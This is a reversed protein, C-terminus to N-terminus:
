RTRRGEFKALYMLSESQRIFTLVFSFIKLSGNLLTIKLFYFIKESGSHSNLNDMKYM